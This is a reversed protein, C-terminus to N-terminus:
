SRWSGFNQAEQDNVQKLLSRLQDNLDLAAKSQDQDSQLWNKFMEVMTQQLIKDKELTGVQQLIDMKAGESIVTSLAAGGQTLPQTLMSMEGAGKMAGGFGGRSQTPVDREFIGTSEESPGKSLGGKLAGGAIIGVSLASFGVSVCAGIMEFMAMKAQADYSQKTDEAQNIMSKAEEVVLKAEQLTLLRADKKNIMEVELVATRFALMAQGSFWLNIKGSPPGASEAASGTSGNPPPTLKPSNLPGPILGKDAGAGINGKSLSAAAPNGTQLNPQEEYVATSETERISKAQEKDSVFATAGSAEAHTAASMKSPDANGLNDYFDGASKDAQQQQQKQQGGKVTVNGALEALQEKTMPKGKGLDKGTYDASQNAASNPDFGAPPHIVTSM